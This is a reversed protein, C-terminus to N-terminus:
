FSAQTTAWFVGAMELKTAADLNRCPTLTWVEVNAITFENSTSTNKCLRPNAFTACSNTEGGVLDGDIMFGIGRPEERGFPCTDGVWEGGGVAITKRTCYQIMPDSGTCPYVEMENEYNGVTREEPSAYRSKKLRWVFADKSGFWRTGPRWPTATFSGFVEGDHTEVGIITFTSNHISDLLTPLSAGDRVLSYKLWFNSEVAGMPFFGRLNEMIFPTLVRPLRPDFHGLIRFPCEAPKYYKWGNFRLSTHNAAGGLGRGVLEAGSHCGPLQRLLLTTGEESAMTSLANPTCPTSFLNREFKGKARTATHPHKTGMSMSMTTGEQHPMENQKKLTGDVGDNDHLTTHDDVDGLLSLIFEKELPQLSREKETVASKLMQCALMYRDKTVSDVDSPVDSLRDIEADVKEDHNNEKGVIGRRGQLFSRSPQPVPDNQNVHRRRQSPQQPQQQHHSHHDRSPLDVILSGRTAYRVASPDRKKNRRSSSSTDLLFEQSGAPEIAPIDRHHLSQSQSSSPPPSRRNRRRSSLLSNNSANTATAIAKSAPPSTWWDSSSYDYEVNNEMIEQGEGEDDGEGQEESSHFLGFPQHPRNNPTETAITTPTTTRTRTPPSNLWWPLPVLPLVEDEEEERGTRYRPEDRWPTTSRSSPLAGPPRSSPGLSRSRPHSLQQQRQQQQQTRVLHSHPHQPSSNVVLELHPAAANATSTTSGRVTVVDVKPPPTEPVAPHRRRRQPTTRHADTVSTDAFAASRGIKPGFCRAMRERETENTRKNTRENM